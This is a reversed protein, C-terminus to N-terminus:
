CGRRRPPSRYPRAWLCGYSGIAAAADATSAWGFSPFCRRHGVFRCCGVANTMRSWQRRRSWTRCPRGSPSPSRRRAHFPVPLLIPKRPRNQQCLPRRPALSPRGNHTPSMNPVCKWCPWSDLSSTRYKGEWVPSCIAREHRSRKTDMKFWIHTDCTQQNEEFLNLLLSNFFFDWKLKIM